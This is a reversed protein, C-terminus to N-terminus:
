RPIGLLNRFEKQLSERTKEVARDHVQTMQQEFIEVLWERADERVCNVSFGYLHGGVELRLTPFNPDTTSIHCKSM